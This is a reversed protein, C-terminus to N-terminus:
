VASKLYLPQLSYCYNGKYYEKLANQAIMDIDCFTPGDQNIVFNSPLKKLETAFTELGQGIITVQENSFNNELLKTFDEIKKWGFDIKTKNNIAYYVSKGYANLVGVTINDTYNEVFTTIGNIGILPIKKVFSLGNITTIATRLTTFPAPGLSACIFDLGDLSLNNDILLTQITPILQASASFKSLSIKNLPQKERFLVVEIQDYTSQLALYIIKQKQM